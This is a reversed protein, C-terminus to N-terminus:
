NSHKGEIYCFRAPHFNKPDDIIDGTWGVVLTIYKRGESELTMGYDFPYGGNFSANSTIWNAWFIAEDKPLIRGEYDEMADIWFDEFIDKDIKTTIGNNSCWERFKKEIGEPVILETVYTEIRLTIV